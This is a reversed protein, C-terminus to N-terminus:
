KLEEELYEMPLEHKQMWAKEKNFSEGLNEIEPKNIQLWLTIECIEL